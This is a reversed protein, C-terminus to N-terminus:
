PKAVSRPMDHLRAVLAEPSRAALLNKCTEAPYSAEVQTLVTGEILYVNFGLEELLRHITSYTCGFRCFHESWAEFYVFLTNQLTRRAGELVHLEYGEVDIKVLTVEQEEAFDDLRVMPVETVDSEGHAVSNLDDLRRNTFSVWGNQSGCAAQAVRVNGFKNLAVNERLWGAVTPHAEFATVRGSSGCIGAAACTLQGINAGIDIFHDGPRLIRSILDVDGDRDSRDVLLSMSIAAPHVRLKYSGFDMTVFRGLGTRGVIRSAIFRIPHRMNVLTNAKRVLDIGMQEIGGTPLV